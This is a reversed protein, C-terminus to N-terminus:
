LKGLRTGLLYRKMKWQFFFLDHPDKQAAKWLDKLSIKKAHWRRAVHFNHILNQFCFVYPEKIGVLAKPISTQYTTQIWLGSGSIMQLVVTDIKGELLELQLFPVNKKPPLLRLYNFRLGNVIQPFNKDGTPKGSPWDL